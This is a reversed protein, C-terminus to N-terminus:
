QPPTFPDAANTPDSKYAQQLLMVLHSLARAVREDTDGALYDISIFWQSSDTWTRDSGDWKRGTFCKPYQDRCNLTVYHMPTVYGSSVVNIGAQCDLYKVHSSLRQSPSSFSITYKFTDVSVSREGQDDYPYAKLINRDIYKVTDALNPGELVCPSTKTHTQGKLPAVAGLVLAFGILGPCSRRRNTANRLLGTM